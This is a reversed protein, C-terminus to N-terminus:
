FGYINLIGSNENISVKLEHEEDTFVWWGNKLTIDKITASKNVYKHVFDLLGDLTGKVKFYKFRPKAEFSLDEIKWATRWDKGTIDTKMDARYNLWDIVAGAEKTWPHKDEFSIMVYDIVPMGIYFKDLVLVGDKAAKERNEKARALYKARTTDDLRSALDYLVYNLGLIQDWGEYSTGLKLGNVHDLLVEALKSSKIKLHKELSLKRAQNPYMNIFEVLLGEDKMKRARELVAKDETKGGKKLAEFFERDDSIAAINVAKGKPKSATEKPNPASAPVTSTQQGDKADSSSTEMGDASPMQALTTPKPSVSESRSDNTMASAAVTAGTAGATIAARRDGRGVNAAAGGAGAVISKDLSECGTVVALCLTMVSLTSKVKM